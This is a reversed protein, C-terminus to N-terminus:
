YVTRVNAILLITILPADLTFGAEITKLIVIKLMTTQQIIFGFVMLVIGFKVILLLVMVLMTSIFGM